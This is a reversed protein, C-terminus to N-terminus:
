RASLTDEAPPEVNELLAGDVAKDAAVVVAARAFPLCFSMMPGHPCPPGFRSVLGGSGALRGM